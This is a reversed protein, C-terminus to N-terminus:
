YPKTHARTRWFAALGVLFYIAGLIVLAVGIWWNGRGLLFGNAVFDLFLMAASLVAVLSGIVMAYFARQQDM